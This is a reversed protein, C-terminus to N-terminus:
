PGAKRVKAVIRDGEPLLEWELEDGHSVKLADAVGEPVIAKVSTSGKRVYSVKSKVVRVAQVCNTYLLVAWIHM